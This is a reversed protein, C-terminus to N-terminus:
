GTSYKSDAQCEDCLLDGHDNCPEVNCERCLVVREPETAGVALLAKQAEHLAITDDDLAEAAIKLARILLERESALEAILTLLKDTKVNITKM